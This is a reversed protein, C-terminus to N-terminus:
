DVDVQNLEYTYAFGFSRNIEFLEEFYQDVFDNVRAITTKPIFVIDYPKLLIDNHRTNTKLDEKLNVTMFLPESTGQNRLVVVNGLEATNKFGGAQFIAQLSTLKGSIPIMGPTKVEGGIYIKQSSFEKVIVAIEANKLIKAYKETLTRDLESPEVGAAQVEDILQLSIRGDPRVKIRENLESNYYFKIEIIDGVQLLYENSEQIRSEEFREFAQVDEQRMSNANACSSFILLTLFLYTSNRKMLEFVCRIIRHFIKRGQIM